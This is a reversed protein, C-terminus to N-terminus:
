REPEKRKQSKSAARQRVPVLLERSCVLEVEPRKLFPERIERIIAMDLEDADVASATSIGGGGRYVSCVAPWEKQHPYISTLKQFIPTNRVSNVDTAPGPLFDAGCPGTDVGVFVRTFTFRIPRHLQMHLLQEEVQERAPLIDNGSLYWSLCISIDNLLKLVELIRGRQDGELQELGAAYRYLIRIIHKKEFSTLRIRSPMRWAKELCQDFNAAAQDGNEGSVEAIGRLISRIWENRPHDQHPSSFDQRDIVYKTLEETIRPLSYKM